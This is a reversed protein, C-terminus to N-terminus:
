RLGLIFDDIARGKSTTMPATEKVVLQREAVPDFGESSAVALLVDDAEVV